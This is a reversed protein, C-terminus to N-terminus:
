GSIVSCVWSSGICLRMQPKLSEAILFKQVKVLVRCLIRYSNLLSCPSPKFCLPNGEASGTEWSDSYFGLTIQRWLPWCSSPRQWPSGSIGFLSWVCPAEAAPFQICANFKPIRGLPLCFFVWVFTLSGKCLWLGGSFVRCLIASSSELILVWGWYVPPAM